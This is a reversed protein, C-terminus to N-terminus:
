WITDLGQRGKGDDTCYIHPLMAAANHGAPLSATGPGAAESLVLAKLQQMPPGVAPLRLQFPATAAAASRWVVDAAFPVCQGTSMVPHKCHAPVAPVCRMGTVM